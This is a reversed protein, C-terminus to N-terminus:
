HADLWNDAIGYEVKLPVAFDIANEMKDTVLKIMEDKEPIFLDFVLEDHVQLLMKSQMNRSKMEDHINIMAIKVIDAASGQIPANIANREAHGRVIGNTSNIDKLYRKRHMITEVFGKEKALEISQDMFTKIKPYQEFYSEIIEKAERRPINLNQALGFASVGYIIGFNVAKAKSRMERDVDKLEVSFVKAATASHIDEGSIFANKMNEDGSMEAIIRLEIQSYDAAFIKYDKGRPIFAKRIERGMESRIPINQLNPNNSSLRGTAAVTQLYTTHIKNTTPNALKPLADVYTSKLKKQQRYNLIKGIIEHKNKLKSLTAEDTKFQGTKTTKAKEDIQLVNFLIDGLQKPSDVNFETGADQIIGEHLEALSNSLEISFKSLADTDLTIGEHEMSMLVSSVPMEIKHLLNKINKEQFQKEFLTKLQFTVDADESAYEAIESPALDKMSKQKKGKPGILSEISVPKYGLYSESLFDMGHKFDPQLLYHAIMTDFTPGYIEMGYRLLITEDFKFNHAIKEISKSQFIPKFLAVREVADEWKTPMSVYFGQGKKYSFAIGLLEATQKELGSTETDFCISKQEQLEQILQEVENDSEIFKYNHPTNVITKLEITDDTLNSETPKTNQINAPTEIPQGFLDMQGNKKISTEPLPPPAIKKIVIDEGTVRKALQRFELETFLARIKDKDAEERIFSKEDFEVPADLLITALKKSLLGQEAFNIVNEKQKGKLEDSHAILGEISGYQAVLKKSTKEGIGPIGPINDAADGWLGLIDIVQLPDSIEFKKCVEEIGWIERPKGSRGPRYMFINESVLQAFDKDPTMMYTVFDEKEAKKALTGIVDDAEFGTAQLTPINLADCLQKIYPIAIRIDEPMEERHAKYETYQENRISGGPADFVMAIHTPNEKKIVDLITMTVGFVASTNMGKSNIRPTRIFAFHSRYILAFADLLFLKKKDAM